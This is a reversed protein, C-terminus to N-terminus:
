EDIWMEFEATDPDIGTWAGATANGNAKDGVLELVEDSDLNVEEVEGDENVLEFVLEIGIAKGYDFLQLGSPTKGDACYSVRLGEDKHADAWANVVEAVTATAENWHLGVSQLASNSEHYLYEYVEDCDVVGDEDQQQELFQEWKGADKIKRVVEAVPYGEPDVMWKIDNQDETQFKM